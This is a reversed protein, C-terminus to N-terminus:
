HKDSVTVGRVLATRCINFQGTNEPSDDHKLPRWHAFIVGNIMLLYIHMLIVLLYIWIPWMENLWFSPPDVIVGWHM